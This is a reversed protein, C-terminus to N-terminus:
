PPRLLDRRAERPVQAPAEFDSFDPSTRTSTRLMARDVAAQTSIPRGDKDDMTSIGNRRCWRRVDAPRKYGSAAALAPFTVIM